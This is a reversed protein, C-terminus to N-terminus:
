PGRRRLLRAIAPDIPAPAPVLLGAYAAAPAPPLGFDRVLRGTLEARDTAAGVADAPALLEFALRDAAAEAEREAASRPRGSEDRQL